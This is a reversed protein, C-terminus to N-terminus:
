QEGEGTEALTYWGQDWLTTLREFYKQYKKGVVDLTYNDVAHKRIKKRDLTKVNEVADAFDQLTRCRYGTVGHVNNEIFGGWDTTITPTGCMQAEIVVYGYPEIYLTPAFTAIAGGM